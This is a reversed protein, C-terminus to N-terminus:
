VKQVAKTRFFILQQKCQEFARNILTKTTNIGFLVNSFRVILFSPVSRAEPLFFMNDAAKYGM